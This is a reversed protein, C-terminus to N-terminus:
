AAPDPPAVTTGRDTSFGPAHGTAPRLAEREAATMPAAMDPRFDQPARQGPAPRPASEASDDAGIRLDDAGHGEGAPLLRDLLGFRFAAAVGAAVAGIAAAAGIAANRTSHDPKFRGHSDRRPTDHHVGARQASRRRSPATRDTM